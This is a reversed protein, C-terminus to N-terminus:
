GLPMQVGAPRIINLLEKFERTVARIIEQPRRTTPVRGRLKPSVTETRTIKGAPDYSLRITGLAKDSIVVPKGLNGYSFTIKSGKPSQLITIRGYGDYSLNVVENRSNSASTLNGKSDYRFNSTLGNQIIQSIKKFRPDYEIRMSETPSAREKLLGNAYYTFDTEVGSEITKSPKGCCPTFLTIKTKGNLRTEQRYLYRVGDPQTKITYDDFQEERQGNPSVKVYKTWFHDQPDSASKGYTYQIETGDKERNFAILGNDDYKIERYVRKVRSESVYDIATILHPLRKNEYRYAFVQNSSDTVQILNGNSDYTYTAKLNRNDIVESVRDQKMSFRLFVSKDESEMRILRGGDQTNTQGGAQGGIDTAYKFLLTFGNKDTQRVIRGNKDYAQTIGDYERIWQGNRFSITQYGYETSTLVEGRPIESKIKYKVAIEARFAPDTQLQSQMRPPLTKTSLEAASQAQGMKQEFFARKVEQLFREQITPDEKEKAFTLTNGSQGDRLLVRRDGTVTLLSESLTTWGWGFLGNWGTNENLATISNYARTLEVPLVPGPISFDVYLLNVSGNLRNVNLALAATSAICCLALLLNKM